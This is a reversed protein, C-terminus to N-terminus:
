SFDTLKNYARSDQTNESTILLAEDFIAQLEERGEHSKEDFFTVDCLKQYCSKCTANSFKHINSMNTSDVSIRSSISENKTNTVQNKRKSKADKRKVNKNKDTKKQDAPSYSKETVKIRKQSDM